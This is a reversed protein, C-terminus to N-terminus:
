VELQGPGIVWKAAPDYNLYRTADHRSTHGKHKSLKGSLVAFGICRDFTAKDPFLKEGSQACQLKEFKDEVHKWIDEEVVCDDPEYGLRLTYPPEDTYRRKERDLRDKEARTKKLSLL